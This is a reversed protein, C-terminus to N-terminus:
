FLTHLMLGSRTDDGDVAFIPAIHWGVETAPTSAQQLVREAHTNGFFHVAGVGATLVGTTLLVVALATSNGEHELTGAGLGALAVGQTLTLVGGLLRTRRSQYARQRLYFLGAQSVQEDELLASAVHASAQREYVRMLGHVLLGASTGVLGLSAGQTFANDHHLGMTQGHTLGLGGVLLGPVVGVLAISFSFWQGQGDAENMESVAHHLPDLTQQAAGVAPVMMVSLAMLACWLRRWLIARVFVKMESRTLSGLREFGVVWNFNLM